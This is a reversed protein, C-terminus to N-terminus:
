NKGHVEIITDGIANISYFIAIYPKREQLLYKKKQTRESLPANAIDYELTSHKHHNKTLVGQAFPKQPTHNLIPQLLDFLYGPSHYEEFDATLKVTIYKATQAENIKTNIGAFNQATCEIQQLELNNRPKAEALFTQILIIQEVSVGQRLLEQENFASM